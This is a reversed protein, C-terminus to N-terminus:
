STGSDPVDGDFWSRHQFLAYFVVAYLAFYFMAIPSSLGTLYLLMSLAVLNICLRWYRRRRIAVGMAIAVVNLIVFIVPVLGANAAAGIDLVQAVLWGVIATIGGVILIASALEVLVPRVPRAPREPAPAPSEPEPTVTQDPIEDGPAQDAGDVPQTM